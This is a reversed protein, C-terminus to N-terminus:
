EHGIRYNPRDDTDDLFLGMTYNQVNPKVEWVESNDIYLPYTASNACLYKTCIEALNEANNKWKDMLFQVEEIGIPQSNESSKTMVGKNAYRYQFVPTCECLTYYLMCPIVYSDLLTQNAASVTNSGIQSIIQDYLNTGLLNRIYFLQVYQLTPTILKMDANGSIVSNEKLYNEGIILNITM